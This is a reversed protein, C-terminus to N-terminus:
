PKWHRLPAHSPNYLYVGGQGDDVVGLAPPYAILGSPVFDGQLYLSVQGINPTLVGLFAQRRVYSPATFWVRGLGDVALADEFTPTDLGTRGGLEYREWAGDAQRSVGWVIRGHDASLTEWLFWPSGDPAFAINKVSGPLGQRRSFNRWASEGAPLHSAGAISGVWVGGDPAVKVTNATNALLGDRSRLARLGAAEAVYLTGVLDIVWLRGDRDVAGRAFLNIRLRSQGAEDLHILGRAPNQLVWAQQSNAAAVWAASEVQAQFAVWGSRPDFRYVQGNAGDACWAASRDLDLHVRSTCTAGTVPTFWRGPPLTERTQLARGGMALAVPLLLLPAPWTRPLAVILAPGLPALAILWWGPWYLSQNALAYACILMAPLSPALNRAAWWLNRRRRGERTEWGIMELGDRPLPRLFGRLGPHAGRAARRAGAAMVLAALGASLPPWLATERVRSVLLLLVFAQSGALAAALWLLDTRSILGRRWGARFARWRSLAPLLAALPFFVSWYLNLWHAPQFM